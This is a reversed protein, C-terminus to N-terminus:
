EMEIFEKRYKFSADFVIQAEKIRMFRFRTAIGFVALLYVGILIVLLNAHEWVDPSFLSCIILICSISLSYFMGSIYRNISEAAYIENMVFREQGNLFTKCFNFFRRHQHENRRPAWIEKYFNYVTDPLHRNAADGLWGIYPFIETAWLKYKYKNAIDKGVIQELSKLYEKNDDFRKEKMQDLKALKDRKVDDSLDDLEAKLLDLIVDSLQTLKSKNRFTRHYWASLKDPRDTMLLRLLMGALYSFCIITIISLGLSAIVNNEEIVVISIITEKFNLYAVGGINLVLFMGPVFIEFIGGTQGIAPVKM